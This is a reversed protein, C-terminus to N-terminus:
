HTASWPWVQELHQLPNCDFSPRHPNTRHKSQISCHGGCFWSITYSKKKSMATTFLKRRWLSSKLILFSCMVFGCLWFGKLSCSAASITSIASPEAGGGGGGGGGGSSVQMGIYGEQETRTRLSLVRAITLHVFHIRVISFCSITVLMTVLCLEQGVCLPCVYSSVLQRKVTALCGGATLIFLMGTFLRAHFYFLLWCCLLKSVLCFM